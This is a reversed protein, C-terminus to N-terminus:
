LSTQSSRRLLSGELVFDQPQFSRDGNRQRVVGPWDPWGALRRMTWRMDMRCGMVTTARYVTTSPQM